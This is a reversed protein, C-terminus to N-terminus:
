KKDVYKPNPKLGAEEALTDASDKLEKRDKFKTLLMKDKYSLSIMLLDSEEDKWYNWNGKPYKLKVFRM